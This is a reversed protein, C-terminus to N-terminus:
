SNAIFIKDSIVILSSFLNNAIFKKTALFKNQQLSLQLTTRYLRLPQTRLDTAMTIHYYFHTEMLNMIPNLSILDPM